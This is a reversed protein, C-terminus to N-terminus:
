AAGQDQEALTWMRISERTVDVQGDTAKRLEDAIAQWTPSYPHERREKVWEVVDQGLLVTALRQAATRQTAVCDTDNRGM